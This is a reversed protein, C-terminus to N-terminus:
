VAVAPLAPLPKDEDDIGYSTSTVTGYTMSRNKTRPMPRKRISGSPTLNPIQAARVGSLLIVWRRDVKTRAIGVYRWQEDSIAAFLKYNQCACDEAVAHQTSRSHAHRRYQYTALREGTAFGSYGAPGILHARQTDEDMTVSSGAPISSTQDLERAAEAADEDLRKSRKLIKIKREDLRLRTINLSRVLDEKGQEFELQEFSSANLLDEDGVCRFDLSEHTNVKMVKLSKMGKLRQTSKISEMFTSKGALPMLEADQQRRYADDLRTTSKSKIHKISQPEDFQSDARTFGATPYVSNSPRQVEEIRAKFDLDDDYQSYASPSRSLCIRRHASGQSNRHQRVNQVHEEFIKDGSNYRGKLEPLDPVDPLCVASDIPRVTLDTTSKAGRGQRKVIEHEKVPRLSPRDRLLSARLKVSSFSTNWSRFREVLSEVSSSRTTRISPSRM